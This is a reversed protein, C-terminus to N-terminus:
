SPLNTRRWDVGAVLIDGAEIEAKAGALSISSLGAAALAAKGLQLRLIDDVDVYRCDFGESQLRRVADGFMRLHSRTHVCFYFRRTRTM